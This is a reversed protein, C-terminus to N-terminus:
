GAISNTGRNRHRSNAVLVLACLTAVALSNPEPVTVAGIAAGGTVAPAIGYNTRWLDYDIGDVLGDGSFDGERWGGSDGQHDRWLVYDAATVAGDLDADGAHLWDRLSNVGQKFAGSSWTNLLGFTSSTGSGYRANVVGLYDAQNPAPVNGEHFAELKLVEDSGLNYDNGPADEGIRDQIIQTPQGENRPSQKYVGM